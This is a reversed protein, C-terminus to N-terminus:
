NNNARDHAWQNNYANRALQLLGDAYVPDSDAYRSAINRLTTDDDTNIASIITAEEEAFAEQYTISM